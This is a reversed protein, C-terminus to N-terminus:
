RGRLGLIRESYAPLRESSSDPQCTRKDHPVNWQNSTYLLCINFDGTNNGGLYIYYAVQRGYTTGQIFLYTAGAPANAPNKDKQDTISAHVGQLNEPVYFTGSFTNGSINQKSYNLLEGAARNDSSDRICM